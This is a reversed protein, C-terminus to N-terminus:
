INDSNADMIKSEDTVVAVAVAVSSEEDAMRKVSSM